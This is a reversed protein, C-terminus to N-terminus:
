DIQQKTCHRLLNLNPKTRARDTFAKAKLANAGFSRWLKRDDEALGVRYDQVDSM